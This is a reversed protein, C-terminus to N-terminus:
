EDKLKRLYDIAKDINENTPNIALYLVSEGNSCNVTRTSKVPLFQNLVHLFTDTIDQKDGVWHTGDKSITGLYIKDLLAGYGITKM